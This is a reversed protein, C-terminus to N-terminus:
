DRGHFSIWNRRIRFENATIQVRKIPHNEPLIRWVTMVKYQGMGSKCAKPYTWWDPDLNDPLRESPAYENREDQTCVTSFRGSPQQQHVEAAWEVTFETHIRRKVRM